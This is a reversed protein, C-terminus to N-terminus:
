ISFEVQSHIHGLLLEWLASVNQIETAGWLKHYYRFPLQEFLCNEPLIKPLKKRIM